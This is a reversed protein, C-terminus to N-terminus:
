TAVPARRPDALIVTAAVITAATVTPVIKAKVYRKIGKYGIRKTVNKSVGSTRTAAAAIGAAAETGILDATAVSTFDAATATDSEMIIPTLTANTATISGYSLEIEVAAYGLRDVADGVKGAVTTLAQPHISKIIDIRNHLDGM